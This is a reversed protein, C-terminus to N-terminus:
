DIEVIFAPNFAKNEMSGDKMPYGCPNCVVRCKGVLYDVSHHMHAHIWLDAQEVLDDLNSAFSASLPDTAYEPTVSLMSPATHTIVVTRGSFPEALKQRLWSKHTAHIRATDAARLKRFGKSALRIRKYDNMSADAERMADQRQDDGFLRFDTWMSAGLFRISGIQHEGCNLFHVNGTAQCAAAIDAQTNELSHGYPEHNGDVYLVPIGPFTEAAWQVAKAGTDIDGPLIVADPRSLGPNIAPARDRWLEHHLDSLVLLRM